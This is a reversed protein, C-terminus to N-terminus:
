RPPTGTSADSADANKSLTASEKRWRAFYDTPCSRLRRDLEEIYRRLISKELGIRQDVQGILRLHLEALRLFEAYNMRYSPTRTSTM